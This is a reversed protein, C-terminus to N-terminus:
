AVYPLPQKATLRAVADLASHHTVESLLGPAALMDGVVHVGDGRDGSPRDRWTTGPLDLAGSEGTVTLRRRWSERDRWRRYACDLLAEIRAVGQELTEDPFMGVQSQILHEGAPAVTPDPISYTEVWGSGDLDSVVFPDLRRRNITVDLLATRTGTWTLSPDGLLEAARALPTAVVVPAPPLHDVPTNVEIRAGLGRAHAALRDILTGWGGPIYRVTPPYRTARRLRENVFAASLRGPDHDFTAVGMFNCIQDAAVPDRLRETAWARFSEDVPAESRRLRLIGALAKRPPITRARGHVRVAIRAIAPVRRAPEALGREDLWSWLPGDGYIVHPGWNARPAGPTTRARGGLEKRAEYLTVDLGAERASVATVLGGLGGGVITLHTRM